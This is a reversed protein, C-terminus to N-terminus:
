VPKCDTAHANSGMEREMVPAIVACITRLGTAWASLMIAHSPYGM